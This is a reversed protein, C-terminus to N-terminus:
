IDLMSEHWIRTEGSSVRTKLKNCYYNSMFLVCVCMYMYPTSHSIIEGSRGQLKEAIANWNHPGYREVLERLKEDEAPRWHGRTCM